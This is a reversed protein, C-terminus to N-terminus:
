DGAKEIFRGEMLANRVEQMEPNECLSKVYIHPESYHHNYREIFDKASQETFFANIFVRKRICYNKMWDAGNMDNLKEFLEDADMEKIDEDDPYAMDFSKAHEILKEKTKGIPSYGDYM